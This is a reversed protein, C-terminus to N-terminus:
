QGGLHFAAWEGAGLNHDQQKNQRHEQQQHADQEKNQKDKKEPDRNEQRSQDQSRTEVRVDVVQWRSSKESISDALERAGEKLANEAEQHNTNMVISLNDDLSQFQIEVPGLKGPNLRIVLKEESMETKLHEVVRNLVQSRINRHVSQLGRDTSLLKNLSESEPNGSDLSGSDKNMMSPTVKNVSDQVSAHSQQQYSKEANALSSLKEVEASVAVKEPHDTASAENIEKPKASEKVSIEEIDNALSEKIQDKLVPAEKSESLNGIVRTIKDGITATKIKADEGSEAMSIKAAQKSQDVQATTKESLNVTEKTSVAQSAIDKLSLQSDSIKDSVETNGMNQGSGPLSKNSVEMLDAVVKSGSKLSGLENKSQTQIGQVNKLSTLKNPKDTELAVLEKLSVGSKMANEETSIQSGVFVAESRATAKLLGQSTAKVLGQSILTTKKETGGAPNGAISGSKNGIQSTNKKNEGTAVTQKKEQLITPFSIVASQDEDKNKAPPHNKEERPFVSVSQTQSSLLQM